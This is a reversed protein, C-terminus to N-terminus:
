AAYRAAEAVSVSVIRSVGPEEQTVGILRGMAEMTGKNHTVVVCQVSEGIDTLIGALRETRSDDLPADVEDLLCFPPPNLRMVAIIFALAAAAKEGGSLARVPSQRKGPPRAKIEFEGDLASEGTLELRAEGGGFMRAFLGPFERNVGEFAATLRSRTERDIRRMAGELEAAAASIDDRQAINKELAEQRERLEADAMFNIAGLRDRKGRLADREAELQEPTADPKEARLEALRDPAVALEELSDGLRDAAIALEREAVRLDSATTQVSEMESFKADRAQEAAANEREASEQSKRQAELAAAAAVSASRTESLRRRLESDDLDDLHKADRGLRARLEGRRSARSEADKKLETLRRKAGEMRLDAERRRLAAQHLAARCKELEAEDAALKERAAANASEAATRDSERAQRASDIAAIESAIDSEEQKAKESEARLSERRAALARAREQAQGAEVRRAVASEDAAVRAAEARASVEGASKADSEASEAEANKESIARNLEAVRSEWEFGARAEGSAIVADRMWAAGSPTAVMEGPPLGRRIRKADDDTDAAWVGRLWKGLVALGEPPASIKDALPVTGAPPESGGALPQMGGTPPQMGGTPPENAGTPPQVGSRFSGVGDLGQGSGGSDSGSEGSGFGGSEGDGSGDSEGSGAHTSREPRPHLGRGAIEVLASGAPPMGRNELFSDLDSVARADAFRGLAADLARSWKGADAKLVRALREPASGGADSEGAGSEWEGSPFVALLADREATLVAVANQLTRVRERANELAAAASAAEAARAKLEDEARQSESEGSGAPASEMESEASQLAAEAEAARERQAVARESLMKRRVEDSEAKQGIDALADRARDASLQLERRRTERDALEEGLRIEEEALQKRQTEANRIEGDRARSEEGGALSDAELTELAQRDAAIRSKLNDRTEGARGADREAAEASAAASAAAAQKEGVLRAAEDLAARRRAADAKHKELADRSRALKEDAERLERRKDALEAAAADRRGAILLADAENIAATLERQRRAARAQRKLAETRKEGEAIVTELQRLNERSHALRRETERRRDKYRAVGAAEELFARLRDPSSEAVQAVMGQEVVGCARASVGADRFFDVLDRRRVPTNNIVFSSQGDRSLERRATIQAARGWMGLDRGDDNAFALEVACWDAAARGGGGNFLVDPLSEGRLASSRSEGLAWRVADVLNSKGGGNPGVVGTLGGGFSLRVPDAFSKFGELKVAVLRM